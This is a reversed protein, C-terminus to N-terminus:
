PVVPRLPRFGGQNAYAPCEEVIALEERADMLVRVKKEGRGARHRQCSWDLDIFDMRFFYSVCNNRSYEPSSNSRTDTNDQIHIEVMQIYHCEVVAIEYFKEEAHRAITFHSVLMSSVMSFDLSGQM